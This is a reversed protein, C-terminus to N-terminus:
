TLKLESPDPKFSNDWYDTLQPTTKLDLGAKLIEAGNQMRVPDLSSLGNARVNSTLVHKDLVWRLRAEEVSQQLLPERKVAAAAAAAPDKVAAKWARAVGLAVRRCLDPNSDIIAKSAILSNSPFDFGFKSYYLMRIDELKAGAEVLNFVSTYDFSIVGQAEGRLLLSDRIKVDVNVFKVKSPDIKNRVLLAPLIKTAASAAGVGIKAGELESLETIPKKSLSLVCAPFDDFIGLIVKPSREPNGAAFEVLTSIDAFGFDHSGTAVRRVAEASGPGGDIKMAFGLDRYIGSEEGYFFPANGGYIRFDLSLAAENGASHAIRPACVSGLGALAAGGALFGRRSASGRGNQAATM